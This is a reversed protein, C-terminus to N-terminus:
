NADGMVEEEIARAVLELIARENPTFGSTMLSGLNIAKSYLNAPSVAKAKINKSLDRDPTKKATM